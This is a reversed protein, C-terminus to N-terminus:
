AEGGIDVTYAEQLLEGEQSRMKEFATIWARLKLDTEQSLTTVSSKNKIREQLAQLSAICERNVTQLAQFQRLLRPFTKPVATMYGNESSLRLLDPLNQLLRDIIVLLPTRIEPRCRQNLLYRLDGILIYELDWCTKLSKIPQEKSDTQNQEVVKQRAIVTLVRFQMRTAMFRVIGM